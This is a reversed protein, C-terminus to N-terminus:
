AAQHDIQKRTLAAFTLSRPVLRREGVVLTLDRAGGKLKAPTGAQDLELPEGDCYAATHPVAGVSVEASYPNYFGIRYSIRAAPNAPDTRLVSGRDLAADLALYATERPDANTDVGSLVAMIEGRSTLASCSTGAANWQFRVTSMDIVLVDRARVPTTTMTAFTVPVLDKVNPRFDGILDNDPGLSVRTADAV